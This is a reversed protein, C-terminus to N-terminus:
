SRSRPLLIYLQGTQKMRGAAERAQSGAGWFFDGRIPGVIAGGTDQAVMLRRLPQKTVPHTTDIWMPIGMSFHRRDVALSRGPTLFVGSAGVPGSNNLVTGNLPKVERFFVYSKNKQMLDIAQSPNKELWSRITQLSINDKSVIGRKVLDQGIAFYPQGNRGAFGVRVLEGTDLVVRGSGQIHLFFADIASDVWLLELGMGELAGGDISARTAYPVVRGEKLRGSIEEGVWNKRFRGLGVSVLDPPRRFLPVNYKLSRKRSGRLQPEYYGTYLGQKNQGDGVQFAEFWREFFQQGKRNSTGVNEKLAKQCVWQLDSKKGFTIGSVLQGRVTKKVIKKCSRLFSAFVEAHDDRGWDLLRDFGIPILSLTEASRPVNSLPSRFGDCGM